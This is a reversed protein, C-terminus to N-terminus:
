DMINFESSTSVTDGVTTATDGEVCTIRMDCAPPSGSFCNLFIVSCEHISLPNALTTTLYYLMILIIYDLATTINTIYSMLKM